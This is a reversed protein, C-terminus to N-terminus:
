FSSNTANLLNSSGTLEISCKIESNIKTLKSNLSTKLLPLFILIQAEGLGMFSNRNFYSRIWPLDGLGTKRNLEYGCSSTETQCKKM